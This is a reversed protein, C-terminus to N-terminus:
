HRGMKLGEIDARDAEDFRDPPPGDFVQGIATSEIAWYMVSGQSSSHGPHEPDEHDVESRYSLNVLGLLHGLEHVVVAEEVQRAGGLLQGLTQRWRDPFLAVESANRALGLTDEQAFRGRVYLLHIAVTDATSRQSRHQQAAARLDADTWTSRESSFVNGGADSIGGPKDVVEGLVGVLHDIAAPDPEAGEQVDVEVVVNPVSGRVIARGNAGVEGHDDTEPQPAAPGGGDEAPTRAGGEPPVAGRAESAVDRAESAVGRAESALESAADEVEQAVEGAGQCAGTVLALAVGLAAARHSM